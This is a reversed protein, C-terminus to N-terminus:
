SSRIGNTNPLAGKAGAHHRALSELTGAVEEERRQDTWSLERQMLQAIADVVGTGPHDGSGLNTRRMVVDELKVAMERRVAHIVEARLTATGELCTLATPDDAGAALVEKYETGYNKLIAQLPEATLTPAHRAADHAFASFDEIAGGALPVRETGQNRPANPMQGLLMDLAQSADGRATTYRIGILTVLGDVQHTKRHDIFRSEHGFSLEDPAANGDGFPILGRNSFIVDSRSLALSPYSENIENMWEQLEDEEIMATDPHQSYVKHWVGVLTRDRWPVVFLHRAPRSLLADRDRTQGQVALAYNSRPVRDVVFYADRSFYGRKWDNFHKRGELLYEAGPGAANLTLRANIEFHDGSIRDRILAGRVRNGEWLFETAEAYNCVTAGRGVASKIFALVLRPPNYMQGDDFIAAGTLSKPELDPFHELVEARNMFRSIPIHRAPDPIGKNRDCTLLDYLLMGTGLFFKGKQAHGYTPIVIPLPTVLHPAIRLFAGRERASHRIRRVDLHQIYRIGGHVMKFCEASAGGGFDSREVLAVKLGRLAADHAAAAGFAGGGIVLLDFIENSFASPNRNM